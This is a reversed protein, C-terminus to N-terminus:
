DDEAGGHVVGDGDPKRTNVDDRACRDGVGCCDMRRGGDGVVCAGDVDSERAVIEEYEAGSDVVSNCDTESTSVGGSM